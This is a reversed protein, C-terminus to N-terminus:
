LKCYFLSYVLHYEYNVELYKKLLTKRHQHKLPINNDIITVEGNFNTLPNNDIWREIWRRRPGTPSGEEWIDGLVLIYRYTPLSGDKFHITDYKEYGRKIDSVISEIKHKQNFRKAEIIIIADNEPDIIIGDFRGNGEKKTGTSLESWVISEKVNQKYHFMFKQVLNTEHFGANGKGPYFKKEFINDYEDCMSQFTKDILETINDNIKM